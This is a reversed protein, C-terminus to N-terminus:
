AESKTMAEEASDSYLLSYVKDRLMYLKKNNVQYLNDFIFRFSDEEKGSVKTTIGAVTFSIEKTERLKNLFTATTNMETILGQITKITDLDLAM